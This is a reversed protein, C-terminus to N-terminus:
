EAIEVTSFGLVVQMGSVFLCQAQLYNDKVGLCIIRLDDTYGPYYELCSYDSIKFIKVEGFKITVYKNLKKRDCLVMNVEPYQDDLMRNHFNIANLTWDHFGSKSELTNIFAEPFSNRAENYFARYERGIKEWNENHVYSEIVKNLDM